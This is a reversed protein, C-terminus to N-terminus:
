LTEPPYDISRIFGSSPGTALGCLSPVPERASSIPLPTSNLIPVNCLPCFCGPDACEGETAPPQRDAGPGCCADSAPTGAFAVTISAAGTLFVLALLLVLPAASKFFPCLM